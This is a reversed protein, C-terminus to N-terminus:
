LLSSGALADDPPQVVLGIRQRSRCCSQPEPAWPSRRGHSSGSSPSFVPPVGPTSATLASSTRRSTACRMM